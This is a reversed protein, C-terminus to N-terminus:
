IALSQKPIDMVYTDQEIPIDWNNSPYWKGGNHFTLIRFPFRGPIPTLKFTTASIPLPCYDVGQSTPTQISLINRDRTCGNSPKDGFLCEPIETKTYTWWLPIQLAINIHNQCAFFIM